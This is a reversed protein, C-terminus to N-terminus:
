VNQTARRMKKFRQSYQDNDVIVIKAPVKYSALRDKCYERVRKRLSPLDENEFLNFTAVVIQGTIPNKESMVAVDKVNPMGLLVNEVEVPYVKLGGVNIMESQRGLIKIWEGDVEVADDTNFWGEADFPSPANLYGLMASQAKILLVGNEVKTEFGEGGVKVWLSKPERSKSRLIGLESLGYTQQFEVNPLIECLKDLTSQPMVETGYTVRKLCSLDYRTYAESILILNLFTPSTPLLEVKEKEIVRLVTDPNREPVTVITGTNSLIYLLTNIGGIHDLLLFTLSVFTHRPKKFKELLPSFDHLAAKSKGTSGSSFLVLGPHGQEVLQKLLPNEISRKTHTITSSDDDSVNICVQVQAIERFEDKHMEISSTLPIIITDLEILALLLAVTNPSYDGEISVTNGAVVNNAKLKESWQAIEASLDKYLYPTGNWIIFQKHANQEFREHLWKLNSM